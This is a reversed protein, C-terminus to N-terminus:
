GPVCTGPIRVRLLIFDLGLVYVPVFVDSFVSIKYVAAADFVIKLQVNIMYNAQILNFVVAIEQFFFCSDLWDGYPMNIPSFLIKDIHTFSVRIHCDTPKDFGRFIVNSGAFLLIFPKYIRSM